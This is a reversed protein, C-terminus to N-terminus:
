LDTVIKKLQYKQKAFGWMRIHYFFQINTLGTTRSGSSDFKTLATLELTIRAGIETTYVRAIGVYMCLVRFM